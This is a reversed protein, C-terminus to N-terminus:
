EGSTQPLLSAKRADDIKKLHHPLKQRVTEFLSILGKEHPEMYARGLKDYFANLFEKHGYGVLADFARAEAENLILIVKVELTAVSKIESM